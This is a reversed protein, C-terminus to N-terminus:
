TYEERAIVELGTLVLNDVLHPTQPLLPILSAADGGHLWIDTPTAAHQQLKEQMATIASTLALMCGTTIADATNTPFTSVHGNPPTLQATNRTLAQYMLRTGPMIIGGLFEGHSLADVTVATGASVIISHQAGLHHAGILAAWRDSGLQTAPQYHSHVGCQHTTATLAHQMCHPYQQTIHAGIAPGAVNSIVLHSVNGTHAALQDIQQHNLNGNQREGNASIHLWKIRTNGADILLLNM